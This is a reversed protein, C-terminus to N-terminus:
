LILTRLCKTINVPFCSHQLREKLFICAKPSSVKNFLSELVPTISHINHFKQCMNKYFVEPQQKQLNCIDVRWSSDYEQPFIHFDM